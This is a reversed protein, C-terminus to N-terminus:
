EMNKRIECRMSLCVALLFDNGTLVLDLGQLCNLREECVVLANYPARLLTHGMDGIVDSGYRINPM